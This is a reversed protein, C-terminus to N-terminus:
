GRPEATGGREGALRQRFKALVAEQAEDLNVGCLDALRVTIFLLDGIEAAVEASTAKAEGPHGFRHQWYRRVERAVEGSEECLRAILSDALGAGPRDHPFAEAALQTAVLKFAELQGSM